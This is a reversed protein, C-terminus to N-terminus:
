TTEARLEIHRVRRAPADVVAGHSNTYRGTRRVGHADLVAYGTGVGVRVQQHSRYQGAHVVAQGVLDFRAVRHFAVAVLLVLLAQRVVQAIGQAFQVVAFDHRAVDVRHVDVHEHRALFALQGLELVGDGVKLVVPVQMGNSPTPPACVDQTRRWGRHSRAQERYRDPM